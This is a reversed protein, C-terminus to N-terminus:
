NQPATSVAMVECKASCLQRLVGVHLLHVHRVLLVLQLLLLRRGLLFVVLGVHAVLPLRLVRVTLAGCNVCSM